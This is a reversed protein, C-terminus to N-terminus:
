ETETVLSRLFAVNSYRIDQSPGFRQRRLGEAIERVSDEVTQTGEFGIADQIRAFSVRYNRRDEVESTEVRVDPFRGQVIRAIDAIRHNEDDRGVNFTRGGVAEIPAQLAAIYADAADAVHLLPRWQDGGHVSILGREAANATMVNVVLDFRMRPSPGHLTAMRFVTPAFNEDAMEHLARESALKMRAYLSVPNLRSEEDLVEDGGTAGYVSCTSAFVFRNIQQFKAVEAAMKTALYNVELTEEPDLACAPDGVIAALHVVADMGKTADVLVQLDRMDGQVIELAPHDAVEALPERGFLMLDLVRVRYGNRLLRPVLVSGLYGAGGLVLVSRVARAERPRELALRGHRDFYALRVVRGDPGVVPVVLAGHPPMRRRAHRADLGAAAEVPDELDDEGLTLPETNMIASVPSALEAGGLLARRVDGDTVVGALRDDTDTVLAFGLAGRDITRMAEGISRDRGVAFDKPRM